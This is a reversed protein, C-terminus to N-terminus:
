RGYTLCLENWECNGCIEKRKNQQLIMKHVMRKFDLYPMIAGEQLGCKVLVQKDYKMVKDATECTGNHNNPCKMCINDTQATICIYPNEELKQIM